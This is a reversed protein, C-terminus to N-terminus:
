ADEVISYHFGSDRGCAQAQELTDFWKTYGFNYFHAGYM